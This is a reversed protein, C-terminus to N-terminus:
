PIHLYPMSLKEYHCFMTSCIFASLNMAKKISDEFKGGRELYNEKELVVMCWANAIDTM